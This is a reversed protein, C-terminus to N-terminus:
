GDPPGGTDPAATDHVVVVPCRARAVVRLAVSGLLLDAMEGHGHSGVVLLDASETADVLRRAAHGEVVQRHVRDAAPDGLTARVTKELAAAAANGQWDLNEVPLLWGYTTPSSWVALAHLEGDTREAYRAAWRLAQRSAPSGDVGVVIKEAARETAM